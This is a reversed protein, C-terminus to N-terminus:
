NAVKILTNPDSGEPFDYEGAAGILATKAAETPVYINELSSCDGFVSGMEMGSYDTINLTVDTMSSCGFFALKLSVTINDPVVPPSILSRCCDFTCYLDTVGSPITFKSVDTLAYCDEFTHQINTVSDPISPAAILNTCGDFTCYLSTIGNPIDPPVILSTCGYFLHAVSYADAPIETPSLDVYKTSNQKVIYGLTGESDSSGIEEYTLGTVKIKYPKSTTNASKSSLYDNLESFPVEEYGDQSAFGTIYEKFTTPYEVSSVASEAIIRDVYEKLDNPLEKYLETDISNFNGAKYNVYETFYKPLGRKEIDEM